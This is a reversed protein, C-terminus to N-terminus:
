GAGNKVFVLFFVAVVVNLKGLWKQSKECHRIFDLGWFFILVIEEKKLCNRSPLRRLNGQKVWQMQIDVMIPKSWAVGLVITAINL